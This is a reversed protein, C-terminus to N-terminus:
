FAHVTRNRIECALERVDVSQWEATTGNKKILVKAGGGMIHFSGDKNQVMNVKFLKMNKRQDPNQLWKKNKRKSKTSKM